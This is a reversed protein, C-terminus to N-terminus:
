SKTNEKVLKRGMVVVITVVAAHTVIITLAALGASHTRLWENERSNYDLLEKFM